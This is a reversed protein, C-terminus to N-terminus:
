RNQWRRTINEEQAGCEKLFEMISDLQQSLAKVKVTHELVQEEQKKLIPFLGAVLERADKVLGKTDDIWKFDQDVQKRFEGKDVVSKRQTRRPRSARHQSTDGQHSEDQHSQGQSTNDQFIDDQSTNDEEESDIIIV